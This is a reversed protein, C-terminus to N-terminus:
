GPQDDPEVSRVPEMVIRQIPMPAWETQLLYPPIPSSRMGFRPMAFLLWFLLQALVAAPEWTLVWGLMPTGDPRTGHLQGHGNWFNVGSGAGLLFIADIPPPDDGADSETLMAEVRDPAVANEYAFLFFPRRHYYRALDANPHGRLEPAALMHAKGPIAALSKFQRGKAIADALRETTLTTKVEAAAAVCEVILLQSEEGVAFPQDDDVIAIDVQSSRRGAHDIVEGHGVRYKPPLSERLFARFAAEMGEGKNGAHEFKARTAELSASLRAQWVDIVQRV